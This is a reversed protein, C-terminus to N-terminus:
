NKATKIAQKDLDLGYMKLVAPTIAALGEDGLEDLRALLEARSTIPPMGDEGISVVSAATIIQMNASMNTAEVAESLSYRESPKLKRLGYRVGASDVVSILGHPDAIPPTNEQVRAVKM